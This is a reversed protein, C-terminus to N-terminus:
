FQGGVVLSAGNSTPVVGVSALSISNEAKPPANSPPPAPQTASKSEWALASDVITTAIM